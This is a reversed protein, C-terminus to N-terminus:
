KVLKYTAREGNSFYVEAFYVGDTEVRFPIPQSGDTIQNLIEKGAVDFISVRNFTHTLDRPKFYVQNNFYFVKLGPTNDLSKFGIGVTDRTTDVPVSLV